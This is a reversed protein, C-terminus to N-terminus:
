KAYLCIISFRVYGFVSDQEYNILEAYMFYLSAQYILLKTKLNERSMHQLIFKFNHFLMVFVLVTIAIYTLM